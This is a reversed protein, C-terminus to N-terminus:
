KIPVSTCLIASECISIFATDFLAICHFDCHCKKSNTPLVNTVSMLVIRKPTVGSVRVTCIVGYLIAFMKEIM